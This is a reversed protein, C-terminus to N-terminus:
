KWVPDDLDASARLLDERIPLHQPCKEECAGCGVCSAPKDEMKLRREWLSSVVGYNRFQTYRNWASFVEPIKVGNPCPMCYRCGTSGNALRHTM